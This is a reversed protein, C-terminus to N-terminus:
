WPPELSANPERGGEAPKPRSVLQRLENPAGVENPYEVRSLDRDSVLREGEAAALERTSRGEVIAALLDIGRERARLCLLEAVEWLHGDGDVFLDGPSVTEREGVSVFTGV